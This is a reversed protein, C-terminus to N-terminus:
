EGVKEKISKVDNQVEKVDNSLSNISKSLESALVDISKTYTERDKRLEEKYTDTIEKIEEKHLEVQRDFRDESKKKSDLIEKFCIAGVIGIAGLSAFENMMQEM